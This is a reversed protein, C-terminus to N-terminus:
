KKGAFSITRGVGLKVWRGPLRINGIDSHRQDWINNVEVHLKWQKWEYSIKGDMVWYPEFPVEGTYTDASFDYELYQGARDYYSATLSYYLNGAHGSLRAKFQEDPYNLSYKSQHGPATKQQDMNTYHLALRDVGATFGKMKDLRLTLSLELGQNILQTMNRAKWQVQESAGERRSWAILDGADHYFWSLHGRLFPTAVKLGAEYAQIKEPDLNPNGANSPGQYFLDTFTPMRLSRNYSAYSTLWPLLQYSMDVGPYYTWGPQHENSRSALMGASLSFNGIYVNHEAYLNVLSRHYKRTYSGHPEGHVALTDSMPNGLVNSWIQESRMDFGFATKGLPWRFSSGTKIGYVDTMHYNHGSYYNSPAYVGPVYKATDSQGKVWYRGERQYWGGGERFLEFRDRHRRWYVSPEVQLAGEMNMSLSVLTVGTEEYQEPYQPTYFGQAGYGKNKHGLQLELKDQGLDAVGQYYLSYTSFDTNKMYGKSASHSFSLHNRTQGVAFSGTATAHYFGHSGGGVKLELQSSDAPATIINVAGGFANPGFVRSGPGKLVEIERVDSLNVPLNLAFHGTQPDTIDIGNLLVLNQDFSSGRISLDSQVGMPGRQRVDVGSINDLVDHIGSVPLRDVEGEEVNSVIRSLRPYVVPTRRASVVVEDIDVSDGVVLTDQQAAAGGPVLLFFFVLLGYFTNLGWKACHTKNTLGHIGHAINGMIM